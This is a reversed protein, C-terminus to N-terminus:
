WPPGPSQPVAAAGLLREAAQVVWSLRRGDTTRLSSLAAAPGQRPRLTLLEGSACCTACAPSALTASQWSLLMLPALRAGHDALRASSDLSHRLAGWLKAEAQRGAQGCRERSTSQTSSTTLLKRQQADEM